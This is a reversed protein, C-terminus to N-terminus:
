GIEIYFGHKAAFAQLEAWLDSGIVGTRTYGLVRVIIRDDWYVHHWAHSIHLPGSFVKRAALRTYGIGRRNMEMKLLKAANRSTLSTILTAKM